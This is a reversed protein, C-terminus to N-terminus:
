SPRYCVATSSCLVRSLNYVMVDNAQYDNSFLSMFDEYPLNLVLRCFAFALCFHGCTASFLGQIRRTSHTIYNSQISGLSDFIELSFQSPAYVVFWHEGPMRSDQTNVIYIAPFKRFRTPLHNYPLVDFVIPRRRSIVQLGRHLTTANM